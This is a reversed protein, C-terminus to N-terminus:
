VQCFTKCIDAGHVHPDPQHSEVAPDNPGPFHEMESEFNRWWVRSLLQIIVSFFNFVKPKGKGDYRNGVCGPRKCKNVEPPLPVHRNNEDLRTFSSDCTHCMHYKTIYNSSFHQRALYLSPLKSRILWAFISLLSM